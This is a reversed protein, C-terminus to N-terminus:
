LPHMMPDAPEDGRPSLRSRVVRAPIGVAIAQNPIPGHVVANAGVAAGAGIHAGMLVAVGRGIWSDAGIRVSGHIAPAGKMSPASTDHNHDRISCHEAIQARDEISMSREAWILTYYGIHVDNGITITASKGVGLVAGDCLSVRDGIRVNAGRAAALRVRPGVSLRKGVHGGIAMIRLRLMTGRIRSNVRRMASLVEPLPYAILCASRAILDNRDMFGWRPM